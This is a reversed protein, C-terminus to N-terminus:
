NHFTIKKEFSCPNKLDKKKFQFGDFFFVPALKRNNTTFQPLIRKLLKIKM